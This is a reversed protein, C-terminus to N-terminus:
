TNGIKNSEVPSARRNSPYGRSIILAKSRTSSDASCRPGNTGFISVLSLICEHVLEDLLIVMGSSSSRRPPTLQNEWHSIPKLALGAISVIESLGGIALPLAPLLPRVGSLLGFFLIINSDIWIIYILIRQSDLDTRDWFFLM